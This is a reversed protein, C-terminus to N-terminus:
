DIRNSQGVSTRLMVTRGLMLAIILVALTGGVGALAVSIGQWGDFPIPVSYDPLVSFSTESGLKDFGMREAVSELGDPLTSAFPAFFAAVAIACTVGAAFVRGTGVLMGSAQEPTYILDSRHRLIFSVVLGTILAEGIGIGAHFTVMLTFINLFDFPENTQSLRFELCFLCAAAMVTVWSAVVAGIITGTQKNRCLRRIADEIAYGGWSGIVAMHLMNAGVASIGGDAFLFCQVVLVLTLAVCGAWPGLVTAALVGGILHGSTGILPFKVMQGAFILASMMGTMPVIRDALSDKLRHISYGLAGVSVVGTVVCVEPSLLGDLIHM